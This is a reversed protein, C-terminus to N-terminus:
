VNIAHKGLSKCVRSDRRRKKSRQSVFVHSAVKEGHWLELKQIQAKGRRESMKLFQLQLKRNRFGVFRARSDKCDM